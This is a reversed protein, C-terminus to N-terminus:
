ALPMKLVSIDVDLRGVVESPNVATTENFNGFGLEFVFL